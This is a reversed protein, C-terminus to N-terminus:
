IRHEAITSRQKFSKAPGSAGAPMAMFVVLGLLALLEVQLTLVGQLRAMLLVVTFAVWQARTRRLRELRPVLRFTLLSTGEARARMWAIAVFGSLLAQLLLVSTDM